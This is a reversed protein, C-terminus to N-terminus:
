PFRWGGAPREHDADGRDDPDLAADLNRRGQRLRRQPAEEGDSTKAAAALMAQRRLRTTATWRRKAWVEPPHRVLLLDPDREDVLRDARDDGLDLALVGLDVREDARRM